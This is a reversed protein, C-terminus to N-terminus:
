NARQPKGPLMRAGDRFGLYWSGNLLQWYLGRVLWPMRRHRDLLSLLWLSPQRVPAFGMARVRLKDLIQRPRDHRLDIPEFDRFIPIWGKMEPYRQMLIPLMRNYRRAQAYREALTRRHNHYSIAETCNVLKYGLRDARYAFDIDEYGILGPDFPEIHAFATKSYSLHGGFGQYFPLFEGAGRRELGDDPNAIEEVYSDYVPPYSMVQGCALSQPYRAHCALHAEVLGPDAILDADLLLVLESRAAMTGANRAVSIGYKGDQELVDLEYPAEFGRGLQRSGDTSAQDVVLVSFAGPGASQQCLSELTMRLAERRNHCPMVITLPPTM